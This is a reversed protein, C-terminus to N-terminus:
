AEILLYGLWPIKQSGNQVQPLDGEADVTVETPLTIPIVQNPKLNALEKLSMKAEALQSAIEIESDLLEEKLAKEWREDANERDSQIGNDLLERIPEIMSYPMAINLNGGGGELEVHFKSVVIMEAPSVINAMQPNVESSQYEFDIDCILKWAEKLDAFIFSLVQQVIRLEAPTFDRGEIKTGFRGDGGFFNEVFMFVLKADLVFLATGRLPPIKVLNLSTPVLLTSIFESFKIIEVGVVSFEVMQRMFNFLSVRINRVFRENVMELSPMRGRVIRDQEAFDFRHLTNPDGAAEEPIEGEAVGCLLADIEEQDLTENRSM